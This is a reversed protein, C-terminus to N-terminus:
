LVLGARVVGNGGVTVDFSVLRSSAVHVAAIRLVEGPAGWARVDFGTATAQVCDFRDPSTSM